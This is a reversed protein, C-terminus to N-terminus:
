IVCHCGSSLLVSAAIAALRELASAESGRPVRPERPLAETRRTPLSAVFSNALEPWPPEWPPSPATGNRKQRARREATAHTFFTLCYGWRAEPHFLCPRVCIERQAQVRLDGLHKGLKEGLQLHSELQSNLKPHDFLLDV